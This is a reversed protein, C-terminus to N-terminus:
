VQLHLFTHRVIGKCCSACPVLDLDNEKLCNSCRQFVNSEHIGLFNSESLLIGFHPKEIAIIDGVKLPQNATIYRGFQDSHQVELCEVIFPIKKNRPYSLKFFDWPTSLKKIQQKILEECKEERKILTAFNNKPYQNVKALEINKLCREYLSMEFYVASKNAYALGLNVSGSEAWCLSENYKILASHFQRLGYFGNGENRLIESKDNRKFKSMILCYNSM